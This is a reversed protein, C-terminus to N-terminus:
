YNSLMGNEAIIDSNAVGITYIQKNGDKSHRIGNGLSTRGATARGSSVQGGTYNNRQM